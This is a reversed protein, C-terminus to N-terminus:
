RWRSYLYNGSITQITLGRRAREDPCCDLVVMGTDLEVEYDEFKGGSKDGRWVKFVRKDTSSSM